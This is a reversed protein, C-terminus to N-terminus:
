KGTLALTVRLCTSVQAAGIVTPTTVALFITIALCDVLARVTEDENDRVVDPPLPSTGCYIGVPLPSWHLTM